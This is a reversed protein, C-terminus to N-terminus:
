SRKSFSFIASVGSCRAGRRGNKRQFIKVFSSANTRNTFLTNDLIKVPFVGGSAALGGDVAIEGNIEMYAAGVHKRAHCYM